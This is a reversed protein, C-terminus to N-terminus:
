CCCFVVMAGAQQKKLMLAAIEPAYSIENFQFAIVKIGAIDVKKQLEAVFEM